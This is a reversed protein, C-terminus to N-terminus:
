QVRSQVFITEAIITGDVVYTGCSDSIAVTILYGIHRLTSLITPLSANPFVLNDPHLLAVLFVSKM